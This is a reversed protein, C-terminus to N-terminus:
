APPPVNNYVWECVADHAAQRLGVTREISLDGALANPYQRVVTEWFARIAHQLVEDIDPHLTM